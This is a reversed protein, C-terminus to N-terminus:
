AHPQPADLSNSILAQDAIAILGSSALDLKSSLEDFRQDIHRTLERVIVTVRRRERAHTASELVGYFGRQMLGPPNHPSEIAM